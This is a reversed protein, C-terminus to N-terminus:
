INIDFSNSKATNINMKLCPKKENGMLNFSRLQDNSLVTHTFLKYNSQTIWFIQVTATQKPGYASVIFLRSSLRLPSSHPRHTVWKQSIFHVTKNRNKANMGKIFWYLIILVYVTYLWTFLICWLYCCHEDFRTTIWGRCEYVGIKWIQWITLKGWWLCHKSLFVICNYEASLIVNTICYTVYPKWLLTEWNGIWQCNDM